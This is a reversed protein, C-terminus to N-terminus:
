SGKVDLLKIGWCGMLVADVGELERNRKGGRGLEKIM